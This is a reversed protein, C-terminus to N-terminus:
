MCTVHRDHSPSWLLLLSHAHPTSHFAHKYGDLACWPSPLSYQYSQISPLSPYIVQACRDVDSVVWVWELGAIRVGTARACVSLTDFCLPSAM